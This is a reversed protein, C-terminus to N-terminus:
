PRSVRRVPGNGRSELRLLRAELRDVDDRLVNVNRSFRDVEYRSPASGSEEQLYEGVDQRLTDRAGRAWAAVDRAVAFIGHAAADGVLSSLEEELDPRGYGLLRQFAQATYVDGALDISGGRLASERSGGGPNALNALALLSGSIVVDPEGVADLELELSDEGVVFYMALSTDRVRVAVVRGALDNCLERAPTKAKIQRNIMAALPRLLQQLPNMQILRTRCAIPQTCPLSAVPSITM